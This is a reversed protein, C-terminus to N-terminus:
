VSVTKFIRNRNSIWSNFKFYYEVSPTVHQTLRVDDLFWAPRWGNNEHGITFSQLQGVNEAITSFTDTSGQEFSGFSFPPIYKISGRTGRLTIYVAADTGAGMIDGTRITITYRIRETFGSQFLVLVCLLGFSSTISM